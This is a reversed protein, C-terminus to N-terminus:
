VAWSGEECSFTGGTELGTPKLGMVKPKSALPGAPPEARTRWPAPARCGNGREDPGARIGQDAPPTTPIGVASLIHREDIHGLPGHSAAPTALVGSLHWIQVLSLTANDTLDV